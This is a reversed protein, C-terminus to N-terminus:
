SILRWRGTTGSHKGVTSVNSTTYMPTCHYINRLTKTTASDRAVSNVSTLTYGGTPMTIDNWPMVRPTTNAVYAASMAQSTRRYCHLCHFGWNYGWDFTVAFRPSYHSTFMISSGKESQGNVSTSFSKDSFHRKTDDPHFNLVASLFRFLMTANQRAWDM